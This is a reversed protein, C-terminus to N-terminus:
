GEDHASGAYVVEGTVKSVLVIDSSGLMLVPRDVYAIWCSALDHRLNYPTPAPFGLEELGLVARVRTGGLDTTPRALYAEAITRAQERTIPSGARSEPAGAAPMDQEPPDLSEPM